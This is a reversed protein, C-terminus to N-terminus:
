PLGAPDLLSTAAALRSSTSLVSWDSTVCPLSSLLRSDASLRAAESCTAATTAYRLPLPCPVRDSSSALSSSLTVAGSTRASTSWDM